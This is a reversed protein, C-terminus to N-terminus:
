LNKLTNAVSTYADPLFEQEGLSELLGSAQIGLRLSQNYDGLTRYSISLNILGQAYHLSDGTIRFLDNAQEYYGIASDIKLDEDYVFGTNNLMAAWTASDKLKSAVAAARRYYVIAQEKNGTDLYLTAIKKKLQLQFSDAIEADAKLAADLKAGTTLSDKNLLTLLDPHQPQPHESKPSTCSALLVLALLTLGYTKPAM